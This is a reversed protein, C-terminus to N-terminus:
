SKEKNALVIISMQKNLVKKYFFIIPIHKDKKKKQYNNVRVDVGNVEEEM